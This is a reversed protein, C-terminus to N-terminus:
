GLKAIVIIYLLLACTPACPKRGGVDPRGVDPGGVDPGGVNPGGVDPELFVM